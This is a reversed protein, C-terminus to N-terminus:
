TGPLEPTIWSDIRAEWETNPFFRAFADLCEGSLTVLRKIDDTNAPEPPDNVFSAFCVHVPPPMFAIRATRPAPIRLLGKTHDILTSDGALMEFDNQDIETDTQYAFDELAIRGLAPQLVRHKDRNSWDQVIALPNVRPTGSNKYPQAQEMVALAEPDFYPRAPHSM